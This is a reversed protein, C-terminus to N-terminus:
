RGGNSTDSTEDNWARNRRSQHHGHPPDDANGDRGHGGHGKHMFVHMLPCLLLIALPLWRLTGALHVRHEVGLYFLALALFIWFAWRRSGATAPGPVTM